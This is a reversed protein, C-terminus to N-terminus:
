GGRGRGVQFLGRRILVELRHHSPQGLVPAVRRLAAMIVVILIVMMMSPTIDLSYMFISNVIYVRSSITSAIRPWPISLHWGTRPLSPASCARSAWPSEAARSWQVHLGGVFRMPRALTLMTLTTIINASVATGRLCSPIVSGSCCLTAKM